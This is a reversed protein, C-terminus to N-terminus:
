AKKHVITKQTKNTVNMFLLWRMLAATHDESLGM